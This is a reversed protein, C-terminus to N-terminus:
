SGDGAQREQLLEQLKLRARSLRMSSAKPSIDLFQAIEINMMDLLYRLEIIQKDNSPLEAICAILDEYAHNNAVILSVDDTPNNELSDEQYAQLPVRKKERLLDIVKHKVMVLFYPLREDPSLRMFRNWDEILKLYANHIADEALTQDSTMQLAVSLARYKNGEYFQEFFNHDDDDILALYFHLM